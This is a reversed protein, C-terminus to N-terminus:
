DEGLSGRHHLKPVPHKALVQGTCCKALRQDLCRRTTPQGGVFRQVLQDPRWWRIRVKRIWCSADVNGFLEVRRVRQRCDYASRAFAIDLFSADESLGM